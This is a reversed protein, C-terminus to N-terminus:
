STRWNTCLNDPGTLQYTGGTSEDDCVHGSGHPYKKFAACTKCAAGQVLLADMKLKTEAQRRMVHRARRAKDGTANVYIAWRVPFANEALEDRTM